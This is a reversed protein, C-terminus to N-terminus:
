ELLTFHRGFHRELNDAYVTENAHLTDFLGKHLAPKGLVSGYTVHLVERAHFDDLVGPLSSDTMHSVPPMKEITASVHYTARDVAYRTMSFVLIERFLSPNKESVTRLAELYSTGATKIHLLGKTHRSIASYVAFKDSGSHLSMKYNGFARAVAAHHAFSAEFSAVDGIYDVGKEFDGVYRPALSNVVIGLRSLETAIYIHEALTTASNTEDVSVELEFPKSDMERRLHRVMKLTHAIVAGYKAASRFVEERTLQVSFGDLELPRRTLGYVLDEATAQLTDWPLAAIKEELQVTDTEDAGPDMYDGPDITYFTYGANVFADIENTTKLHDADAGFGKRWGEQWAGWMADDLVQRPSRSTRSNERVSQQCLVAALKTKALARVHGPTALGLRDGCGVSPVLGICRPKLFSLAKKLVEAADADAPGLALHLNCDKFRIARSTNLTQVQQSTKAIIGVYKESGRRGLFYLCRNAATISRPYVAIDALPSIVTQALQDGIEDPLAPALTEAQLSDILIQRM